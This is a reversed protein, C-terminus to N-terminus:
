VDDQLEACLLTNLSGSSSSNLSRASPLDARSIASFFLWLTFVTSPLRRLIIFFSCMLLVASSTFYAIRSPNIESQNISYSTIRFNCRGLINLQIRFYFFYKKAIADGESMVGHELAKLKALALRIGARGCDM